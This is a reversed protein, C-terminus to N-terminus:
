AEVTPPGAPEEDKYRGPQLSWFREVAAAEEALQAQTSLLRFVEPLREMAEAERGTERANRM